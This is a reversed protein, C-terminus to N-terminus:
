TYLETTIAEMREAGGEVVMTAATVRPTNTVNISGTRVQVSVKDGVVFDDFLLPGGPYPSIQVTQQARKRRSLERQALKGLITTSTQEGDSVDGVFLGIANQQTTDNKTSSINGSGYATVRTAVDDMSVTRTFGAVNAVTADGYGFEATHGTSAGQHEYVWLQCIDGSTYECPVLEVDVGDLLETFGLMADAVPTRNDAWSITRTTTTEIYSASTAIRTTADSNATDVVDQIIAGQDTSSYSASTYRAALMPWPDVCTCAVTATSGDGSQEVTWLTGHFRLRKVGDSETRYMRVLVEGPDLLAAADEGAPLTFSLVRPGNLAVELALNDLAFPQASLSTGALTSFEIEWPVAM